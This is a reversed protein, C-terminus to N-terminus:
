LNRTPLVNLLKKGHRFCAYGLFLVGAGTYLHGIAFVGLGGIIFSGGLLVWDEANM